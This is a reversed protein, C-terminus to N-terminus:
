QLVLRDAGKPRVTSERVVLRVPLTVSAPLVGDEFGALLMTMAARAMDRSPQAVTTLRPNSVGAFPIDDFGVIGIDDPSRLGHSRLGDMLGLAIVDDYCVVAQPRRAAIAAVTAEFRDSGGFGGPYPYMDCAIGAESAARLATDRRTANSALDPGNVYAIRRYGQEQLHEIVQVVGAADDARIAGSPADGHYGALSINECGVTVVPCPDAISIAEQPSLISGAVVIGDARQAAFLRLAQREQAPERFGNALLVTYGLSSAATQFAMAVQGHMPDAVDPLLLGLTFTAQGRLSSARADPIYGLQAAAIGVQRRTAESIRTDQRLARSVTTPSVGALRAVDTLGVRRRM